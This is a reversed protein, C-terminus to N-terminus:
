RARQRRAFLCSRGIRVWIRCFSSSVGSCRGPTASALDEQTAVLKQSVVTIPHRQTGEPSSAATSSAARICASLGSGTRGCAGGQRRIQFSRRRANRGMGVKSARDALPGGAWMGVLYGRVNLIPKSVTSNAISDLVFCLFFVSNLLRLTPSGQELFISSVRSNETPLSLGNRGWCWICCAIGKDYLRAAEGSAIHSLVLRAITKKKEKKEEFIRTKSAAALVDNRCLLHVQVLNADLCSDEDSVFVSSARM